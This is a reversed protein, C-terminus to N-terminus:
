RAVAAQHLRERLMRLRGRVTGDVTRGAIRVVLGGVLRQDVDATLEIQLHTAAALAVRLAGVQTESLPVASTVTALAVGRQSNWAAVFAEEIAPLLALRQREILMWVLRTVPEHGEGAEGLVSAVLAAKKERPLGPRALFARAEPYEVVLARLTALRDRIAAPGGPTSAAVDLLARAYRRVAGAVRPNVM